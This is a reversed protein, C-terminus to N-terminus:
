HMEILASYLYSLRLSFFPVTRNDGQFHGFNRYFSVGSNLDIFFKDRIFGSFNIASSFQTQVVGTPFSESFNSTTDLWPETWPSLYSGEGHREYFINLGIKREYTFWRSVALSWRDADPGLVHGILQGRNDYRNREFKQNYVRNNIRLYEVTLDFLNFLNVWQAGLMMGLENPERDSLSKNEVQYDDILFQGYLKVRDRILYAADLGLFTNDDIKENLQVSHYFM